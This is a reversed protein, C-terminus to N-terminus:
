IRFYIINKTCICKSKFFFFFNNQFYEFKKQKKKLSLPKSIDFLRRILYPPIKVAEKIYEISQNPQLSRTIVNIARHTSGSRYKSPNSHSWYYYNTNTSTPTLVSQFPIMMMTFTVIIRRQNTIGSCSSVKLFSFRSVDGYTYLYSLM